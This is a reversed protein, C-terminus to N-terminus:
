PNPEPAALFGRIREILEAPVTEEGCKSAILERLSRRFEARDMCPSCAKLHREIEGCRGAGVERDVYLELEQLIEHCDTESLAM